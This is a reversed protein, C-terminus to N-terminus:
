IDMELQTLDAAALHRWVTSETCGLRRAIQAYSLGEARYRAARWMRALPVKLYDGGYEASLRRAGDIGLMEVLRPSEEIQRPVYLRTGGHAEILRLAAAAGILSALAPEAM